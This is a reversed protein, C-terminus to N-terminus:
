ADTSQRAQGGVATATLALALTGQPVAKVARKPRGIVAGRRIAGFVM